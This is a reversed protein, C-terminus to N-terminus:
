PVESVQNGATKDWKPLTLRTGGVGLEAEAVAESNSWSVDATPQDTALLVELDAPGVGLGKCRDTLADTKLRWGGDLIGLSRETFSFFCPQRPLPIPKPPPRKTSIPSIELGWVLGRGFERLLRRGSAGATIGSYGGAAEVSATSKANIDALYTRLVVSVVLGQQRREEIENWCEDSPHAMQRAAAASIAVLHPTDIVLETSQSVAAKYYSLADVSFSASSEDRIAVTSGGVESLPPDAGFWERADCITTISM